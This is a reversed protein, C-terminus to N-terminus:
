PNPDRGTSFGASISTSTGEGVRSPDQSWVRERMWGSQGSLHRLGPERYGGLPLYRDRFGGYGGWVDYPHSYPDYAYPNNKTQSVALNLTGSEGLPLQVAASYDRYGGTGFGVSLEGHPKRPGEDEWSDAWPRDSGARDARGQGVWNAIQESTSLGHPTAASGVTTSPSATEIPTSTAVPLDVRGRPATNIVGDQDAASLLLMASTLSILM